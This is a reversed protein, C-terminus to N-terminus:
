ISHAWGSGKCAYCPPAGAINMRGTGNCFACARAPDAALVSGQGSCVWCIPAGAQGLRGTGLCFGCKAPVFRIVM